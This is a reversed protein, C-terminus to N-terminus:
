IVGTSGDLVLVQDNSNLNLVRDQNKWTLTYIRRRMVEGCSRQQARIMEVQVEATTEQSGGGMGKM